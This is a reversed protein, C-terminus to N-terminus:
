LDIPSGKCPRVKVSSAPKNKKPRIAPKKGPQGAAKFHLFTQTGTKWSIAHRGPVPEKMKEPVICYLRKTKITNPPGNSSPTPRKEFQVPSKQLAGGGHSQRASM